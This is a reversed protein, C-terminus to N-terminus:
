IYGELESLIVAPIGIATRVYNGAWESSQANRVINSAATSRAYKHMHASAFVQLFGVELVSM